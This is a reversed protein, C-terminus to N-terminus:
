FCIKFWYLISDSNVWLVELNYVYIMILTFHLLKSQFKILCLISVAYWIYTIKSILTKPLYYNPTNMQGAGTHM